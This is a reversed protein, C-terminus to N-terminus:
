NKLKKQILIKWKAEKLKKRIRHLKVKVNSSNIKLIKAIDKIQYGDLYYLELLKKEEKNLKAIKEKIFIVEDIENQYPINLQEDNLEYEIKNQRLKCYACNRAISALYGKLNSKIKDQNKWFLYFTDAIIEEKDAYTLNNKVANDVVKYVYSTYEEIVLEINFSFNNQM